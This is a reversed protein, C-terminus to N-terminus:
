IPYISLPMETSFNKKLVITCTWLMFAKKIIILITKRTNHGDNPYKINENRDMTDRSINM